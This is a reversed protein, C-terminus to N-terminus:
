FGARYSEEHVTQGAADEHVVVTKAIKDHWGQHKEDWIAWFFGLYLVVASVWKGIVERLMMRWFGAPRGTELYIVRLGLLKKGPSRGQGLQVLAYAMYGMLAVYTLVAILGLTSLVGPTPEMGNWAVSAGFAASPLYVLLPLLGDILVAGLRSPVGALREPDVTPADVVPADLETGGYAPPAPYRYPSQGPAAGLM